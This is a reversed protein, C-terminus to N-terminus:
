RRRGGPKPRGGGQQAAAQRRAALTAAAVNREGLLKMYHMFRAEDLEDKALAEQVACGPEAGHACDRFRCQAALADIDDFVRDGLDEEGILKLERMGPTDILCGGQPLPLLVRRTTTHRGRSDNGRVEATKMAERGLLTNTLTSKGAGSSGVLVCSRGPGLYPSLVAVSAADRANVVHLPFGSDVMPQLLDAADFAADGALDAKTLV